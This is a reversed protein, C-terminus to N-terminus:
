AQEFRKHSPKKEERRNKWHWERTKRSKLQSLVNIVKKKTKKERKWIAYVCLTYLSSSSSTLPPPLPSPSTDFHASSLSCQITWVYHHSTYKKAKERVLLFQFMFLVFSFFVNIFNRRILAYCLIYVFAIITYRIEYVADKIKPANAM